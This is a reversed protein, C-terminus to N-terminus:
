LRELIASTLTLCAILGSSFFLDMQEMTGVAQFSGHALNNIALQAHEDRLFGCPTMSQCPGVGFILGYSDGSLFRTEHNDLLPCLHSTKSGDKIAEQIFESTTLHSLSPRM